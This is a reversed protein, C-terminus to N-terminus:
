TAKPQRYFHVALTTLVTPALWRHQRSLATITPIRDTLLATLEWSCGLLVILWTPRERTRRLM